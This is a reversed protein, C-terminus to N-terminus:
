TLNMLLHEYPLFITLKYSVFRAPVVKILHDSTVDVFNLLYVMDLHSLHSLSVFSVM